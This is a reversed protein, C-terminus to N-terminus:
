FGFTLQEPSDRLSMPPSMTRLYSGTHHLEGNLWRTHARVYFVKPEKGHRVM